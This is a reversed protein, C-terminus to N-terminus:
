LIYSCYGRITFNDNLHRLVKLYALLALLQRQRHREAEEMLNVHGHQLRRQM